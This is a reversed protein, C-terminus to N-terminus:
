SEAEKRTRLDCWEDFQDQFLCAVEDAGGFTEILDIATDLTELEPEDVGAQKMALQFATDKRHELEEHEVIRGM